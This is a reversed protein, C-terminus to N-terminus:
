QPTVTFTLALDIDQAAVSNYETANAPETLTITVSVTTASGDTTVTYPGGTLAASFLSTVDASSANTASTLGLTIDGVVGSAATGSSVWNVDFTLTLSSVENEGANEYGVPVLKNGSADIVDAVNVTTTVSDGDGVTITGTASTSNGTVNSAWYAFTGTTVVLALMVLLAIGLKKSKM